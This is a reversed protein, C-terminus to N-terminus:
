GREVIWQERLKADAFDDLSVPVRPRYGLGTLAKMTRTINATDLAIVLEVDATYRVYGHAVVALGGVILYRADAQNLAAIIKRVSDAKM